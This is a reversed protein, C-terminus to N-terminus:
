DHTKDDFQRLKGIANVKETKLHWKSLLENNITLQLEQSPNDLTSATHLRLMVRNTGSQLKQVRYFKCEEDKELSVLDNIHLAM